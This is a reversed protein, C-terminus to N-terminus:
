KRRSRLFETEGTRSRVFIRGPVQPVPQRLLLASGSGYVSRSPRQSQSFLAGVEGAPQRGALVAGEPVQPGRRFNQGGRVVSESPHLRPLGERYPRAAAGSPPWRASVGLQRPGPQLASVGADSGAVRGGMQRRENRTRQFM